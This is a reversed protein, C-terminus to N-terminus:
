EFNKSKSQLELGYPDFCVAIHMARKRESGNLLPFYNSIATWILNSENETISFVGHSLKSIIPELEPHSNSFHNLSKIILETESRLLENRKSFIDM